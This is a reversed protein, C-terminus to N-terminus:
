KEEQVRQKILGPLKWCINYKLRSNKNAKTCNSCFSFCCLESHGIDALLDTFFGRVCFTSAKNSRLYDDGSNIAGVVSKPLPRHQVIQRTIKNSINNLVNLKGRTIQQRERCNPPSTAFPGPQAQALVYAAVLKCSLLSTRLAYM